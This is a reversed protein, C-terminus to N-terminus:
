GILLQFYHRSKVWKFFLITAEYDGVNCFFSVTKVEIKIRKKSSSFQLSYSVLNVKRFLVKANMKKQILM